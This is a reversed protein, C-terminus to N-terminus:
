TRDLDEPFETKFGCLLVHPSGFLASRGSGSLPIALVQRCSRAIQAYSDFVSYSYAVGDGHSVFYHNGGRRVWNLPRLLGVAALALKAVGAVGAGRGYINSDSLFVALRAVRLMEAVVKHPNAVHHLVGLEIVADFSSNAYPLTESTVQDLMDAPLGSAALMEASTDNGRLRVAPFRNRLFHLGRGTGCGTDLVSTAHIRDLYTAIHRLALEQEADTGHMRNYSDATKAYYDNQADDGRPRGM